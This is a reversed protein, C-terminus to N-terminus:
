KTNARIRFHKRVAESSIWGEEEGSIRGDNLASMLRIQAQIKDYTEATENQAIQKDINPM